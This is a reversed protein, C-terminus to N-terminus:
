DILSKTALISSEQGVHQKSKLCNQSNSNEDGYRTEGKSKMATSKGIVHKM